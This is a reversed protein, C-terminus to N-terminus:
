RGSGIFYAAPLGERRRVARIQAKTWRTPCNVGGDGRCTECGRTNHSYELPHGCDSCEVYGDQQAQTAM